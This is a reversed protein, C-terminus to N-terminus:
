FYRLYIRVVDLFAKIFDYPKVKSGAVDEWVRLPCEYITSKVRERDFKNARIWRAIIEVDFVWRSSFPEAFLDRSLPGVRFLKAGCQTDYIGLGLMVSVATAFVRGLYHRIAKRRIRWGLLNVRAGFIMQINPHAELIPWMDHLAPLPTALDADWFGIIDPPQPLALAHLLGERVTEAKGKNQARDLVHIQAPAQAQVRRLMAATDDRSGDNALILILDPHQALFSLFVDQPFRQAENYCPVVLCTKM